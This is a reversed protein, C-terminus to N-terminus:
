YPRVQFIYVIGDKIGWEIEVRGSFLSELNIATKSLSYILKFLSDNIISPYVAYNEKSNIIDVKKIYSILPTIDGQMLYCLDGFTYEILMYDYGNYPTSTLMVGSIDASIMEQVIVSMGGKKIDAYQDMSVSNESDYVLKILEFIKDSDKADVNVYSEFLGAFSANNSDENEHSSRIVIQKCSLSRIKQMINKQINIDNINKLAFETLVFGKAIKTIQNIKILNAAKNGVETKLYDVEDNLDIFTEPDESKLYNIDEVKKIIGCEFDVEIYDNTQLSNMLGNVSIIGNIGLERCLVSAHSTYGGYQTILVGFGKLKPVLFPRLVNTIVAVNEKSGVTDIFENFDNLGTENQELKKVKYRKCGTGILVDGTLENKKFDNEIKVYLPIDYSFNIDNEKLEFVVQQKRKSIESESIRNETCIFDRIEDIRMYDFQNKGIRRILNNLFNSRNTIKFKEWEERMLIKLYSLESTRRILLRTKTSLKLVDATMESWRESNSYRFRLNDLFAKDLRVSDATQQLVNNKVEEATIGNPNGSSTTTSKYKEVYDSIDQDIVENNLYKESISLMDVAQRHTLLENNNTAFLSDKIQKSAFNLEKPIKSDVLEYIDHYFTDAIVSNYYAIYECLLNCYLNFKDILTLKDYSKDVNKMKKLINHIELVCYNYKNDDLLFEEICKRNYRINEKDLHAKYYRNHGISLYYNIDLNAMSGRYKQLAKINSEEIMLAWSGEDQLELERIIM